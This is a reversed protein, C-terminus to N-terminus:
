VMCYLTPCVIRLRIALCALFIICHERQVFSKCTSGMFLHAAAIICHVQNSGFLAASINLLIMGQVAPGMGLIRGPEKDADSDDVDSEAAPEAALSARLVEVAETSSVGDM